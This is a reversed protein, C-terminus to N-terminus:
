RKVIYDIGEAYNRKTIAGELRGPNKGKNKQKTWAKPKIYSSKDATYKGIDLKQSRRFERGKIIKKQMQYELYLKWYMLAAFLLVLATLFVRM